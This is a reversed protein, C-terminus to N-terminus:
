RRRRAATVRPEPKESPCRPPEHLGIGRAASISPRCAAVEAARHTTNMSFFRMVLVRLALAASRCRTCWSSTILTAVWGPTNLLLKWTVPRSACARSSASSSRAPEARRAARYRGLACPLDSGALVVQGRSGLASSAQEAHEDEERGVVAAKAPDGADHQEHVHNSSVASIDSSCRRQRAPMPPCRAQPRCPASAVHQDVLAYTSSSRLPM